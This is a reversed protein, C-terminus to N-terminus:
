PLLSEKRLTSEVGVGSIDRVASKIKDASIKSKRLLVSACSSEDEALAILVHESGIYTHGLEEAVRVSRNLANEAKITFNNGM